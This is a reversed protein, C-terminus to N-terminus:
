GSPVTEANPVNQRGPTELLLREVEAPVQVVVQRGCGGVYHAGCRREQLAADM